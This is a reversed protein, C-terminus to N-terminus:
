RLGLSPPREKAAKAARKKRKKAVETKPKPKYTLVVDVIADLVKPVSEPMPKTV